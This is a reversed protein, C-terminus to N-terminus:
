FDCFLMNYSIDLAVAGSRAYFFGYFFATAGLCPFPRVVISAAGVDKRLIIPTSENVTPDPHFKSKNNEVCQSEIHGASNDHLYKHWSLWGMCFASVDSLNFRFVVFFM